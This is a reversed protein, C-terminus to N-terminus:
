GEQKQGYTYSTLEDIEKSETRNMERVFEEFAKERLSEQTKREQMAETMRLRAQELMRSAKEVQVRQASVYGELTLIANKNEEIDRVKLTGERLARAQEEYSRKRAILAALKEEEEDLRIRANSFEQRAQDEMKLKINLINQLRYRFKAM